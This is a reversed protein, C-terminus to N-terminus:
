QSAVPDAGVLWTDRVADTPVHDAVPVLFRVVWVHVGLMKGDPGGDPPKAGSPTPKIWDNVTVLVPLVGTVYEYVKVQEPAPTNAALQAKTVGSGRCIAAFPPVPTTCTRNLLPSAPVVASIAKVAVFPEEDPEFEADIEM